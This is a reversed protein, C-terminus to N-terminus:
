YMKNNNILCGHRLNDVKSSGKKSSAGWRDARFGIFISQLPFLPAFVSAPLMLLVFMPTFASNTGCLLPFKDIYHLQGVKKVYIWIKERIMCLFQVFIERKGVNWWFNSLGSFNTHGLVGIKKLTGSCFTYGIDMYYCWPVGERKWSIKAKNHICWWIENLSTLFILFLRKRVDVSM